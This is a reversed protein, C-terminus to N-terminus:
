LDKVTSYRTRDVGCTKFLGNLAQVDVARRGVIPVVDVLREHRNEDFIQAQSKDERKTTEGKSKSNVHLYPIYGEPNVARKGMGDRNIGSSEKDGAELTPGPTQTADSSNVSPQTEAAPKPHKGYPTFAAVDVARQQYAGHSHPLAASHISALALTFILTITNRLIVM